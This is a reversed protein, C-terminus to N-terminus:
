KEDDDKLEQAIWDGAERMLRACEKVEQPPPDIWEIATMSLSGDDHEDIRGVFRPAHCRIVFLQDPNYEISGGLIYEPLNSANYISTTM